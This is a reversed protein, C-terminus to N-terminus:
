NVQFINSYTFDERNITYASSNTYTVENSENMSIGYLIPINSDSVVISGTQAISSVANEIPKNIVVGTQNTISAASSIFVQKLQEIFETNLSSDIYSLEGSNSVVGKYWCQDITNYTYKISDIQYVQSDVPNAPFNKM